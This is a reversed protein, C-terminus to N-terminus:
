ARAGYRTQLYEAPLHNEALWRMGAARDVLRWVAIPRDKAKARETPQYGHRTIIGAAVLAHPVGGFFTPSVNPPVTMKARVDDMTATSHELLHFLLLLRAELILWERNEEHRQIAEAKLTKGTKM